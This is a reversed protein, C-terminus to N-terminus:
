FWENFPVPFVLQFPLSLVTSRRMLTAQKTSFYITNEINLEYLSTFQVSGEEDETLTGLHPSPPPSLATFWEVGM